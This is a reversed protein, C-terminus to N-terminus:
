AGEQGLKAYDIAPQRHRKTHCNGNKDTPRVPYRTGDSLIYATEEIRDPIFRVEVKARAFQPPVDYTTNNISITCDNRVKRTIRNHFCEQLWEDSVPRRVVYKEKSAEYREFPTCKIGHHFRLNYNRTWERVKDTMEGCSHIDQTNLWALFGGQLSQWWKEIKGKGAGDRPRLHM